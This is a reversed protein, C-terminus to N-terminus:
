ICLSHFYCPTLRIHGQLSSECGEVNSRVIFVQVYSLQQEISSGIDVEGWLYPFVLQLQLDTVHSARQEKLKKDLSM